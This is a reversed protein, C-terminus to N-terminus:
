NGDFEGHRKLYEVGLMTGGSVALPMLVVQIFPIVLWLGFGTVAWVDSMAAKWRDGFSWGRRALPYDFFNWGVLFATVLISIVNIGPIFLLFMSVGLIIVAKKVEVLITSFSFFRSETTVINEGMSQEVRLSILEYVPSALISSLILSSVLIGILAGLVVLTKILYYFALPLISEPQQFMAHDVFGMGFKFFLVSGGALFIIGILM